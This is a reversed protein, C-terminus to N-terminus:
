LKIKETLQASVLRGNQVQVEVSAFGCLIAKRVLSLVRIEDATLGNEVIALTVQSTLMTRPENM